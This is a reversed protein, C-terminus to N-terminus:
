IKKVSSLDIEVPTERGFVELTVTVTRKAKNISSIMGTSNTFAGSTITVTDGVDLDFVVEFKEIGLEIIEKETLAVPKSGPGVFGTVGRVNRVIYWTYDNMIMKVLVYSPFIKKSVTKKKDSKGDVIDCMPVVVEPILHRINRTQIINDLTAKVKNEYGSYTHVVYWKVEDNIIDSNDINKFEDAM